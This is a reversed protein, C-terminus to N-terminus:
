ILDLFVVEADVKEYNAQLGAIDTPLGFLPININLGSADALQGETIYESTKGGGVVAFSVDMEPLNVDYCKETM